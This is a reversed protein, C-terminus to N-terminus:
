WWKKFSGFFGRNRADGIAIDQMLAKANTKMTEFDQSLFTQTPSKGHFSLKLDEFQKTVKTLGKWYGCPTLWCDTDDILIIASLLAPELHGNTDVATITMLDTIPMNSPFPSHNPSSNIAM